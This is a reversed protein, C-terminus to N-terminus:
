SPTSRSQRRQPSRDLLQIRRCAIRRRARGPVPAVGMGLQEESQSTGIPCHGRCKVCNSRATHGRRRHQGRVARRGARAGDNALLKQSGQRNRRNDQSIEGRTSRLQEVMAPTVIRANAAMAAVADDVKKEIEAIQAVFADIKGQDLEAPLRAVLGSKKELMVRTEMIRRSTSLANEVDSEVDSVTTILTFGLIGAVTLAPVAVAGLAMLTKTAITSM